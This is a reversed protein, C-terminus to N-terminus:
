AQVRHSLSVFAGATGARSAWAGLLSLWTEATRLVLGCGHTGRALLVDAPAQAEPRDWRGMDQTGDRQARSPPQRVFGLQTNCSSPGWAGRLAGEPAELNECLESKAEGNPRFNGKQTFKNSMAAAAVVAKLSRKRKPVNQEPHFLIIYVKPMYLMGLSVSASLSVSVTLTTTQIYLPAARVAESRVGGVCSLTHSPM